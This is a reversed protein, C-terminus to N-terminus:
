PILVACHSQTKQKPAADILSRVQDFLAADGTYCIPMWYVSGMDVDDYRYGEPEKRSAKLM